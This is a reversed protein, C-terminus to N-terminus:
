IYIYIYSCINYAICGLCIMSAARTFLSWFELGAGALHGRKLCHDHMVYITLCPAIVNLFLNRKACLLPFLVLMALLMASLYWSGEVFFQQYTNLKSLSTIQLMFVEFFSGTFASVFKDPMIIIMVISSIIHAFLYVPLIGLYKKLIFKGTDTGVKDQYKQASKAMLFGSVIFFFEVGISQGKIWNYDGSFYSPIYNSHFMVILLSFIFRWFEITGNRKIAPNEM